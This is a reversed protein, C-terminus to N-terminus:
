NNGNDVQIKYKRIIVGMADDIASKTAAQINAQDTSEVDRKIVSISYPIIFALFACIASVVFIIAMYKAELRTVRGNTKNTQFEIRELTVDQKDMRKFLEGFFHDQERKSYPNDTM